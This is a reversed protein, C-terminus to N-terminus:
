IKSNTSKEFYKWAQIIFNHKMQLLAFNSLISPHSLRKSLALASAEGDLLFGGFDDITYSDPETKPVYDNLPADQM